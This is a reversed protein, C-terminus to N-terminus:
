RLSKTIQTREYSFDNSCLYLVASQSHTYNSSTCKKTWQNVPLCDNTYHQHHPTKSSTAFTCVKNVWTCTFISLNFYLILHVRHIFDLNISICCPITKEIEDDLRNLNIIQTSTSFAASSFFSIIRRLHMLIYHTCLM